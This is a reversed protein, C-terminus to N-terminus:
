VHNLGSTPSMIRTLVVHGLIGMAIVVLGIGVTVGLLQSRFGFFTWWQPFGLSPLVSMVMIVAAALPYYPLYRGRVQWTLRVYVVLLVLAFVLGYASFPVKATMDLWVAGLAIIGGLLGFIMEFRRDKPSIETIGFTRRYYRSIRWMLFLLVALVAGILLLDLPQARGHLSNAWLVTIILGAGLPLAMLGQLYPYSTVAFQVFRQGQM